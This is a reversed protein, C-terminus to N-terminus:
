HNKNGCCGFLQKQRFYNYRSNYIHLHM